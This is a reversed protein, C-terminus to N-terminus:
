INWLVMVGGFIDIIIIILQITGSHLNQKLESFFSIFNNCILFFFFFLSSFPEGGPISGLDDAHYDVQSDM